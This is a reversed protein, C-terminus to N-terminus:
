FLGGCFGGEGCIDCEQENRQRQAEKERDGTKNENEEVGVEAVMEYVLAPISSCLGGCCWLLRGSEVAHNCPFTHSEQDFQSYSHWCCGKGEGTRQEVEIELEPTQHTHTPLSSLLSPHPHPHYFFTYGLQRQISDESFFPTTTVTMAPTPQSGKMIPFQPQSFHLQPHITPENSSTHTPKKPHTHKKRPVPMKLSNSRPFSHSPFLHTIPTPSSFSNYLTQMYIHSQFNKQLAHVSFHYEIKTDQIRIHCVGKCRFM